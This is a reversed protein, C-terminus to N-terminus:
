LIFAFQYVPIIIQIGNLKFLFFFFFIIGM